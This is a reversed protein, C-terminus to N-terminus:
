VNTQIVYGPTFSTNTFSATQPNTNQFEGSIKIEFDGPTFGSFDINYITDPELDKLTEKFSGTYSKKFDYPNPLANSRFVDLVVFDNPTGSFKGEITIKKMTFHKTGVRLGTKPM